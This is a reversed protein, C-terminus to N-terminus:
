QTATTEPTPRDDAPTAAAPREKISTFAAPITRSWVVAVMMLTVHGCLLAAVLLPWRVLRLLGAPAEDTTTSRNM